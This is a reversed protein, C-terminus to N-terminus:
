SRPFSRRLARYSRYISTAALIKLIDGPVFPLYGVQLSQTLSHTYFVTLHLVGLALIVFSGCFFVFAQWLFDDRRGILNGVVLPAVLFGLLYGGTPGAIIAVGAMTGAFVPLGIAGAGVYLLQAASGFSRGLVAGSLVVFLTQLTIPVPQLPIRINAGAFTLGAFVFAGLVGLAVRRGEGVLPLARPYAGAEAMNKQDTSSMHAKSIAVRSFDGPRTLVFQPVTYASM